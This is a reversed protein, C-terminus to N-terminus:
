RRRYRRGLALRLPDAREPCFGLHSHRRWGEAHRFGGSMRGVALSFADMTRVFDSMGQTAELFRRQSEHCALASRKRDQVSATDVFADPRVLRGLGDRLGHPSAHYITVPGEFAKRRPISRYGQVGRAFAATVAIRATNM